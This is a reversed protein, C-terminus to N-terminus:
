DTPNISKIYCSCPFYSKNVYFIILGNTYINV